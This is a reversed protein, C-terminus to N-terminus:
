YYAPPMSGMPGMTPPMSGMPGGMPPISTMTGYQPPVAEGMGPPGEGVGFWVPPKDMGDATIAKKQWQKVEEEM